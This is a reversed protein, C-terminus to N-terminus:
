WPHKGRPLEIITWQWWGGHMIFSANPVRKSREKKEKKDNKEKKGKKPKTSKKKEDKKSKETKGVDDDFLNEPDFEEDELTRTNPTGLPFRLFFHILEKTKM